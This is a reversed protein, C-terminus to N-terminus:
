NSQSQYQHKTYIIKKEFRLDTQFIYMRTRSMTNAEKKTYLKKQTKINLMLVLFPEKKEELSLLKKALLVGLSFYDKNIFSQESLIEAIHVVKVNILWSILLNISFFNLPMGYPCVVTLPLIIKSKKFSKNDECYGLIM